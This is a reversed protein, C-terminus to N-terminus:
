HNEEIAKFGFGDLYMTYIEKVIEALEDMIVIEDKLKDKDKQKQRYGYRAKKSVIGLKIISKKYNEPVTSIKIYFYSELM